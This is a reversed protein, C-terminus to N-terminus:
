IYLTSTVNIKLSPRLELGTFDEYLGYSFTQLIESLFQLELCRFSALFNRIFYLHFCLNFPFM